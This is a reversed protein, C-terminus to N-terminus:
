VAIEAWVRKGGPLLETGWRYALASVVQLGRASRTTDPVRGTLVLCPPTRSADRVSMHVLTLRRSLTVGVRRGGAHRVANSVLEALVISATDLLHGLGWADLTAALIRRAQAPALDDAPLFVEGLLVAALPAPVPEAAPDHTHLTELAPEHGAGRDAGPAVHWFPPQAALEDGM